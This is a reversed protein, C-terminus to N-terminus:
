RKERRNRDRQVDPRIWDLKMRGEAVVDDYQGGWKNLGSKSASSTSRTPRSSGMLSSVNSSSGLLGESESEFYEEDLLPSRRHIGVTGPGWKAAWGMWVRKVDADQKDPLEEIESEVSLMELELDHDDETKEKAKKGGEGDSEEGSSGEQANIKSRLGKIRSLLNNRIDAYNALVEGEQQRRAKWDCDSCSGQIATITPLPQSAALRTRLHFPPYRLLAASFQTTTPQINLPLHSPPSTHPCTTFYTTTAYVEEPDPLDSTTSSANTSPARTRKRSTKRKPISFPEAKSAQAPTGADKSDTLTRRRPKLQKAQDATRDPSSYPTPATPISSSSETQHLESAKSVTPKPLHRPSTPPTPEKSRKRGSLRRVLRSIGSPKHPSPPADIAKSRDDLSLKGFLLQEPLGKKQTSTTSQGPQVSQQLIDTSSGTPGRYSSPPYRPRSVNSLAPSETRVHQAIHAPQPHVFITATGYHESSVGSSSQPKQSTKTSAVDSSWGSKSSKRTLTVTERGPTSRDITSQSTQPKLTFSHFPGDRAETSATITYRHPRRASVEPKAPAVADSTAATSSTSGTTQFSSSDDARSTQNSKATSSATKTPLPIYLDKGGDLGNGLRDM